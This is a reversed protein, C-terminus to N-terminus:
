FACQQSPVFPDGCQVVLGSWRGGGVQEKGNILLGYAMFIGSASITSPNAQSAVKPAAPMLTVFLTAVELSLFAFVRLSTKSIRDLYIPDLIDSSSSPHERNDELEIVNAVVLAKHLHVVRRM